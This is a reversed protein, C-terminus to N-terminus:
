ENKPKTKVKFGLDRLFKANARTLTTTTTARKLSPRRSGSASQAGGKKDTDQYILM